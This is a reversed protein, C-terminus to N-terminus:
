ENQYKTIIKRLKARVREDQFYTEIDDDSLHYGQILQEICSKAVMIELMVNDEVREFFTHETDDLSGIVTKAISNNSGLLKVSKYLGKIGMQIENVNVRKNMKKRKFEGANLIQDVTIELADSLGLLISTEPLTSGTEWKSVAQFSIHLAEALDKQTLHMEIRKKRIYKGIEITNM